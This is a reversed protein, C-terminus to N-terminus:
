DRFWVGRNPYGRVSRNRRQMIIQLPPLLLIPERRSADAAPLPNRHNHLRQQIKLWPNQQSRVVDATPANIGSLIIQLQRSM